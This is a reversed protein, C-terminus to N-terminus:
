WEAKIDTRATIESDSIESKPKLTFKAFPFSVM